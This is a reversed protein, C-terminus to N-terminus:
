ASRKLRAPKATEIDEDLGADEVIEEDPLMVKPEPLKGAWIEQEFSKPPPVYHEL